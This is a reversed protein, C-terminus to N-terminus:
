QTTVAVSTAGRVVGGSALRLFIRKSAPDFAIPGSAQAFVAYTASANSALPSTVSSAPPSLCAGTGPDTQCLSLTLPLAVGGTDVTATIEGAGGINVAATGFAHVGNSGPIRLVGDGSPTAGIAIMDPVPTSSSSLLFNNLGTQSPAPQTNACDFVLPIDTAAFAATPTIGFVFSQTGGAPINVPTNPTGVLQNSANTTQFNFSAPISPNVPLTVYCHAVDVGTANIITGFATAAQGVQVSRAYPLVAAFLGNLTGAPAFHATVGQNAHMTVTCAASLGSCAGSWYSFVSGPSPTATLNVAQGTTFNASCIAGCNIGVPNSAVTGSGTTAVSLTFVPVFNATVTQDTYLTLTCTLATGSCGGTWNLFAYGAAPSATLTIAQGFPFAASCAPDCSIGGPASTVTGIGTKGISLVPNPLAVFNATVSQAANMTVTCTGSGSCQAGSWDSFYYGAGPTATLTVPVGANFSASCVSGCNIGEPASVVWPLRM